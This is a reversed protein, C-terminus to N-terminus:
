HHLIHHITDTMQQRFAQPNKMTNMFALQTLDNNIEKGDEMEVLHLSAGFAMYKEALSKNAAEDVNLVRLQIIGNELENRFNSELVTKVNAEISNCTACRNTAHFYIVQLKLNEDIVTNEEAVDTKPTAQNCAAAMAAVLMIIFLKKM